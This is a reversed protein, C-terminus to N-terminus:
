KMICSFSRGTVLQTPVSPDALYAIRNTAMAKTFKFRKITADHVFGFDATGVDLVTDGKFDVLQFKVHLLSLRRSRVMVILEDKFEKTHEIFVEARDKLSEDPFKVLILQADVVKSPDVPLTTPKPSSATASCHLRIATQLVLLSALFFTTRSKSM